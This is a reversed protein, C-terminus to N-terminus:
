AYKSLVDNIPKLTQYLQRYAAFREDYQAGRQPDPDFRRGPKVLSQLAEDRSAYAGCALGAQIAAGLCGSETVDLRVIPKGTLDSKLQLWRDSQAGGGVAVMGKVPVGAKEMSEINLKLEFTTGELIAAIIDQPTTSLTLGLLAGRSAPDLSPTGSGIFHPLLLLGSSGLAAQDVLIDYVNQGSQAALAVEQQGFREKYWRLLNGSCTSYALAVYRGPYTHCYCAHMDALMEATLVPQRLAVVISETTGITLVAQGHAVAGAGFAGNVADHGAVAVVVGEGLGLEAAQQAPIEGVAAGPEVVEAFFGPSLNAAEMVEESWRHTHIDFLMTRAALSHEIAPSLGMWCCFLDEWLLFKWTEKFVEPMAERLWLVKNASYSTHLPQGTIQYLREKGLTRRWWAVQSGCRADVSPLCNYLPRGQADVPTVAEGLVAVGIAQVADKGTQAGVEGIVQRVAEWMQHPDMEVWGPRPYFEAYTRYATALIQGDLSFVVAKSGTTGIDLGLLSM